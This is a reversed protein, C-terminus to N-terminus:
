AEGGVIATEDGTLGYLRAVRDDLSTELAALRATLRAHEATQDRLWTAWQDRGAAPIDRQLCRQLETRLATYDLTWWATLKRSLRGGPPAFDTLLRHSARLDLDHLAQGVASAEKAESALQHRDRLEAPVVFRDLQSVRLYPFITDDTAYIAQWLRRTPRANLHGCLAYALTEDETDAIYITNLVHARSRDVAAVPQPAVRRLLLKAPRDYLSAPKAAQDSVSARDYYRVPGLRYSDLAEGALIPTLKGAEPSASTIGKGAEVGRTWRVLQGLRVLAGSALGAEVVAALAPGLHHSLIRFPLEAFLRPAVTHQPPRTASLDLRDVTVPADGPTLRAVVVTGEVAPDDFCPGAPALRVLGTALLLARVPEYSESLAVPKPVIMGVGHRALRVSLEVFLGATDYQGRATTAWNRVAAEAAGLGGRKVNIWPPNGIVADFGREPEPLLGNPGLFVEPFELEWHFFRPGGEGGVGRGRPSLPAIPAIREEGEGAAPLPPQPTLARLGEVAREYEEASVEVGFYPALWLDAVQRYRDRVQDMEQYCRAKSQQDVPAEAIRHLTDLFCDLHNARLAELFDCSVPSDPDRVVQGSRLRPPETSLDETLRAGLLSNGCRLHHDVFSLAQDGSVTHLWLSLKALEVALPNLDVGYLCREVILRKYFLQPDEDGKTDRAPLNPDTAMALSLFDAAGILFHGSGMAPDLVKLSLYPELLRARQAEIAVALQRRTAQDLEPISRRRQELEAVRREVEPRLAAVKEAAEVVLPEITQEVIYDVIYKPTYFSGTALRPQLELLGEYLTGLQQVPLSAYDIAREGFRDGPRRDYALLDIVQALAQDGVEWRSHGDQPAYAIPPHRGPDFLGGSYAPIGGEAYGQDILEFLDMLRAWVEQTAPTYGDHRLRGNVERHLRLLSTEAYPARDCPLLKRDEAYCLFLLRYLVILANDHVLRQTAPDHRDLQNGPHDLFGNILLRLAGYVSEKLRDGIEAAYTVGGELGQEFDAFLRRNLYARASGMTTQM